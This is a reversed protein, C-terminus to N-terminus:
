VSSGAAEFRAAQVVGEPDSELLDVPRSQDPLWGNSSTFWLALKWPSKRDAFEALVRQVTRRPRGDEFQFKPFVERTQGTEDRRPVAFVQRRQKWNNALAGQNAARSRNLEALQEATFFGFEELIRAQRTALRQAMKTDEPTPVVFQGAMFEIMERLKQERVGATTELLM